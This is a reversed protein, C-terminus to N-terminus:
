PKTLRAGAAKGAPDSNQRTPTRLVTAVFRYLTSRPPIRKASFREALARMIEPVPLRGALDRVAAAVELDRSLRSRTGAFREHDLWWTRIAEADPAGDGFAARCAEALRAYGWARPQTRIFAAVEPAM